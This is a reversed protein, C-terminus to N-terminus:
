NKVTWWSATALAYSAGTGTEGRRERASHRESDADQGPRRDSIVQALKLFQELKITEEEMEM